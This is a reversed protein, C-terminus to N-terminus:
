RSLLGEIRLGWSISGATMLHMMISLGSGTSLRTGLCVASNQETNMRHAGYAVILMIQSDEMGGQHLEDAIELVMEGGPYPRTIDNVVIAALNKGRALVNLRPTGIPNRIARRIEERIDQVGAIHAPVALPMMNPVSITVTGEGVPIEAETFGM